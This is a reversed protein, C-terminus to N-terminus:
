LVNSSSGGGKADSQENKHYDVETVREHWLIWKKKVIALSLTSFVYGGTPVLANLLFAEVGINKMFAAAVLYTVGAIIARRTKSGEWAKDM